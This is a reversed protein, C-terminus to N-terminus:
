EDGGDSVQQRQRQLKVATTRLTEPINKNVTLHRLDNPTLRMLLRLSIDLPMKPNNVLNRVVVYNKMFGRNMTILRLVDASLNTMSAFSEVDTETLRPSQLVARQIIKNSDRILATRAERPGKIALQIREVVTMNTIKQILTLRRVSNPEKEVGVAADKAFAEDPVGKSLEAILEMQEPTAHPTGALAEALAPSLSLGDLDDLVAQIGTSSLHAAARAILDRSCAKNKALADAIGPIAAIETACYNFLRADSDPRALAAIFAQHSITLLKHAAQDAVDGDSDEALVALLEARDELSLALSGSCVALKRERHARGSRIETRIETIVVSSISAGPQRKWM